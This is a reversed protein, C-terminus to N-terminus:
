ISDPESALASYNWRGINQINRLIGGKERPILEKWGNKMNIAQSSEDKYQEEKITFFIVLILLCKCIISIIM